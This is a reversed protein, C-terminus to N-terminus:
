AFEPLLVKLAEFCATLSIKWRQKSNLLIPWTPPDMVLQDSCHFIDSLVFVQIIGQVVGEIVSRLFLSRGNGTMVTAGFQKLANIFINIDKTQELMVTLFSAHASNSVTLSNWQQFNCQAWEFEMKLLWLYPCSRHCWLYNSDLGPWCCNLLLFLTIHFYSVEMTFVCLIFKFLYIFYVLYLHHLGSCPPSFRWRQVQHM